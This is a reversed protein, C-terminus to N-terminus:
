FLGIVNKQFSGGLEKKQERFLLISDNTELLPGELLPQWLLLSWKLIMKEKSFQTKTKCQPKIRQGKSM